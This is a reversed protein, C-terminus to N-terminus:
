FSIVRDPTVVHDLRVDHEHVDAIEDVSEFFSLGIKLCDKRCMKLFRDYFGKGYGVRYGRPDFCLLPVLVIDIRDPEIIESEVPERIGWKSEKLMTTPELLCSEIEDSVHNVRPVTFKIHSFEKKARELIFSTEVEKNKLIPLFLQLFSTTDLQFNSFYRNSIQQSKELRESETLSKQRNLFKARLESKNM